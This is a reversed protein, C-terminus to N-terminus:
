MKTMKKPLFFGKNEPLEAVHLHKEHPKGRQLQLSAAPGPPAPWTLQFSSKKQM